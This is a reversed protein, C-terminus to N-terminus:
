EWLEDTVQVYVEANKVFAVLEFKYLDRLFQFTFSITSM